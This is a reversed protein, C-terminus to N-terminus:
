QLVRHGLSSDFKSTALKTHHSLTGFKLIDKEFRKPHPGPIKDFLLVKDSDKDFKITSITSKLRGVDGPQMHVGM